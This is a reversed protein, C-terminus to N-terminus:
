FSDRTLRSRAALQSALIRARLSGQSTALPPISGDHLWQVLKELPM